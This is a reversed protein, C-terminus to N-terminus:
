RGQHETVLGATIFLATAEGVVDANCFEREASNRHM